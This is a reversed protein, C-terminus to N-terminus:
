LRRACAHEHGGVTRNGPSLSRVSSTPPTTTRLRPEPAHPRWGADHHRPHVAGAPNGPLCRCRAAIGYHYKPYAPDTPAVEPAFRTKQPVAGPPLTLRRHVSRSYGWLSPVPLVNANIRFTERGVVVDASNLYEITTRPDVVPISSSYDDSTLNYLEGDLYWTGSSTPYEYTIPNLPEARLRTKQGDAPPPPSPSALSLSPLLLIATLLTVTLPPRSFADCPSGGILALPEARSQIIRRQRRASLLM